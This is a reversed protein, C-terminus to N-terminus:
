VCVFPGDRTLSLCHLTNGRKERSRTRMSLATGGSPRWPDTRPRQSRPAGPLLLQENFCCISMLGDCPACESGSLHIVAWGTQYIDFKPFFRLRVSCLLRRGREREGPRVVPESVREGGARCVCVCAWRRRWKRTACRYCFAHHEPRVPGKTPPMEDWEAAELHRDRPSRCSGSKWSRGVCNMKPLPPNVSWGNLAHSWWLTHNPPSRCCFRNRRWRSGLIPYPGTEKMWGRLKVCPNEAALVNEFSWSNSMWPGM